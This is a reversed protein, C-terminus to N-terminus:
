RVGELLRDALAAFSDAIAGEGAAPPQGADSATRIDIALPIRGLFPYGLRKAEAEAGGTGFPDSAEGCHPCVYGAMNEVVGLVPVDAKEFFAIARTADILALDQPTSVIVAGAPKFKQIMTLQVDGTGPPLDIVLDDIDGWDAEMLQTLAGAAMPGRWAIAKGAEVLQGMSLMKVGFATQVPILQKERATPTMGEAALLRPQSPGYIDADVLGVKRGKRALAVALNASLTSKGVGGKGSGVAILRPGRPAPPQASREAMHAVRLEDVGMDALASRVAQELADRAAADMGGTELVLTVAGTAGVRGGALRDGAVPALRSQIAATQNQTDDAM